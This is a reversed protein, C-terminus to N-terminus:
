SRTLRATKAFLEPYRERVASILYDRTPPHPFRGSRDYDPAFPKELEDLEDVERRLRARWADDEPQPHELLRTLSVVLQEKRVMTEPTVERLCVGFLGSLYGEWDEALEAADGGAALYRRTFEARDLLPFYDEPVLETGDDLVYSPAPIEGGAIRGRIEAADAGSRDCAEDLTVFHNQLYELDADTFVAHLTPM